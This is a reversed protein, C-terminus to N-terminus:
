DTTWSRMRMLGISPMSEQPVPFKENEKDIEKASEFEAVMSKMAHPGRMILGRPIKNDATTGKIMLLMDRNERLNKFMVMMRAVTKVKTRLIEKKTEKDAPQKIM